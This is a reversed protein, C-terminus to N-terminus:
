TTLPKPYKKKIEDVKALYAEMKTNDGEQQWFVADALEPLPPYELARKRQYETRNWEAQLRDCEALVEEKSPCPRSDTWQLKNWDNDEIGFKAGPVLSLLAASIKM